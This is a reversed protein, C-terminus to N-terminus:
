RFIRYKRWHIRFKLYFDIGGTGTTEDAKYHKILTFTKNRFGGIRFDKEWFFWKLGYEILTEAMNGIDVKGFGQIKSIEETTYVVIPHYTRVM